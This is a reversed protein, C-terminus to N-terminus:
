IQLQTINKVIVDRIGNAFDLYANISQLRDLLFPVESPDAKALKETIDNIENAKQTVVSKYVQNGQQATGYISM